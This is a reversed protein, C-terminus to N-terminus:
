ARAQRAAVPAEFGGGRALTVRVRKGIAEPPCNGPNPRASVL